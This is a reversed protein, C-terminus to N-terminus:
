LEHNDIEEFRYIYDDPEYPTSALCVCAAHEEFDFQRSWVFPPILIGVNPRDMRLAVYTEGDDLDITLQGGVAFLVMSCTRHAHNGRVAGKRVNYTWFVREVKFPIHRMGELFCLEGREDGVNPLEILQCGRPLKITSLDCQLTTAPSDKKYM